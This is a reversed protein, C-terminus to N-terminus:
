TAEPSVDLIKRVEELLKASARTTARETERLLPRLTRLAENPFDSGRERMAGAFALAGLFRQWRDVKKAVDELFKEERLDLKSWLANCRGPHALEVVGALCLLNWFPPSPREASVTQWAIELADEALEDCFQYTDWLTRQIASWDAGQRLAQRVTRLTERLLDAGVKQNSIKLRHLRLPLQHIETVPVRPIRSRIAQLMQDRLPVLDPGLSIVRDDLSALLNVSDLPHSNHVWGVLTGVPVQRLIIVRLQLPMKGLINAMNLINGTADGFRDWFARVAKQMRRVDGATAAFVGPEARYCEAVYRAVWAPSGAALLNSFVDVDFPLLISLLRAHEELKMKRLRWVIDLLGKLSSRSANRLLDAFHLNLSQRVQDEELEREHVLELLRSVTSPMGHNIIHTYFEGPSSVVFTPLAEEPPWAKLKSILTGPAVSNWNQLWWELSAQSPPTAFSPASAPFIGEVVCVMLVLSQSARSEGPHDYWLRYHSAWNRLTLGTSVSTMGTLAVDYDPLLGVDRAMHILSGLTQGSVDSITYHGESVLKKALLAELIQGSLSSVSRWAEVAEVRRLEDWLERLNAEERPELSVYLPNWRQVISKRADALGYTM